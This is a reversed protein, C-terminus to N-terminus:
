TGPHRADVVILLPRARQPAPALLDGISEPSPRSIGMKKMKNILTSRNLGLTTAAGRTGCIAYNDLGILFM